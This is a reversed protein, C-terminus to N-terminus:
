LRPIKGWFSVNLAIFDGEGLAKLRRVDNCAEPSEGSAGFFALYKQVM